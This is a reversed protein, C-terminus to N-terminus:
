RELEQGHNKLIHQHSRPPNQTLASNYAVIRGVMGPFYRIQCTLYPTIIYSGLTASNLNRGEEM